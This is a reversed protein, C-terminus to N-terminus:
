AGRVTLAGPEAGIVGVGERGGRREEGRAQAGLALVRAAEDDCALPHEVGAGRAHREDVRCRDLHEPLGRADVEVREAEAAVDVEAAQSRPLLESEDPPHHAHARRTQEDAGRDFAAGGGPHIGPGRLVVDVHGPQEGPHEPMEMQADVPDHEFGARHPHAIREEDLASRASLEPGAGLLVVVVGSRGRSDVRPHLGREGGRARGRDEVGRLDVRPADPDAQAVLEAPEGGEVSGAHM